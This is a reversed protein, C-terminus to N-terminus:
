KIQIPINKDVVSKIKKSPTIVTRKSTFVKTLRTAADRLPDGILTNYLNLMLIMAIQKTRKGCKVLIHQEQKYVTCSSIKGIQDIM